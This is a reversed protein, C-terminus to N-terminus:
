DDYSELKEFGAIKLEQIVNISYGNEKAVCFPTTAFIECLYRGYKGTRDKKTKILLELPSLKVGEAMKYVRGFNDDRYFLWGILAEKADKGHERHKENSSRLEPTDIDLLRFRKNYKVGFGLDVELDVTDGDVVNTCIAKYEYEGKFLSDKTM